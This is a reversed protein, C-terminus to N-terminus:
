QSSRLQAHRRAADLDDRFFSCPHAKLSLGTMVYDELVQEGACCRRCPRRQPEDFLEDGLHAAFLPLAPEPKTKSSKKWIQGDLRGLRRAM